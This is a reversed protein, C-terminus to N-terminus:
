SSWHQPMSQKRTYCKFSELPTNFFVSIFNLTKPDIYNINLLTNLVDKKGYYSIVLMIESSTGMTFIREVILRKSKIPDIKEVEIDWFYQPKLLLKIDNTKKM